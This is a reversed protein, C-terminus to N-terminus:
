ILNAIVHFVHENAPYLSRYISYAKRYIEAYEPDPKTITEHAPVLAKCAEKVSSFAGASVAALLAAGTASSEASAMVHLEVGLIDSIIQRWVPSQGGSGGTIVREAKIGLSMLIEFADKLAFAVGEMVARALHGSTHRPTLGVLAGRAEPDMHPTRDGILYPLFFLGEAGPPIEGALGDFEAFSFREGMLQRLWRLSMGGALVAGMIYWMNPAAHCFTHTRLEPDYVPEDLVAIVQGGTGLSVSVTGPEVVGNGLAAVPTDGGGRAVPTGEIIGLDSAAEATVRGCMETSEGSSPFIWSDLELAEMIERSWVRNPTDFLLSASADSVDTGVESTIRYRIYDKPHMARHIKRFTDPREKRLWMLTPAMFGTAVPSRAIKGLRLRGVRDYIERVQARSRGDAWIIAPGLPEMKKDLFVGGHM